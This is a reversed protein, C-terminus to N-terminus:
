TSIEIRHDDIKKQKAISATITLVGNSLTASIDSEKIDGLHYARSFRGCSREICKYEGDEKKIENKREGSIIIYGDKFRVDIDEKSLGPVDLKITVVDDRVAVDMAPVFSGIVSPKGTFSLPLLSQLDFPGDFPSSFFPSSWIGFPYDNKILPKGAM